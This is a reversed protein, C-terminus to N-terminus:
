RASTAALGGAPVSPAALLAACLMAVMAAKGMRPGTSVQPGGVTRGSSGALIDSRRPLAVAISM